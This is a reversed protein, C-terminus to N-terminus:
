VQFAWSMAMAQVAGCTHMPLWAIRHSHSIPRLHEWSQCPSHQIIADRSSSSHLSGNSIHHMNPQSIMHM